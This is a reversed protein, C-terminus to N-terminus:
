STRLLDELLDLAEPYRKLQELCAAVNLTGNRSPYLERSRQFEALAAEFSREERLAVGRPFHAQAEAKADLPAAAPPPLPPEPPAARASAGAALSVAFSALLPLLRARRLPM